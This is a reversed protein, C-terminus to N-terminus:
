GLIPNTYLKSNTQIPNLRDCAFLLIPLQIFRIIKINTNVNYLCGCNLTNNGNTEKKMEIM